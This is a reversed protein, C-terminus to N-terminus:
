IKIIGQVGSVELIKRYLVQNLPGVLHLEADNDFPPTSKMIYIDEDYGPAEMKSLLVRLIEQRIKSETKPYNGIAALIQVMAYRSNLSESDMLNSVAKIFHADVDQFRQSAYIAVQQVYFVDKLAACFAEVCPATMKRLHSLCSVANMRDTFVKSRLVIRLLSGEFDPIKKVHLMYTAPLKEAGAALGDLWVMTKMWQISEVHSQIEGAPKNEILNVATKKVFEAFEDPQQNFYVGLVRICKKTYAGWWLDKSAALLGPLVLEKKVLTAVIRNIIQSLDEGGTLIEHRCIAEAAAARLEKSEGTLFQFIFDKENEFQSRGLAIVVLGASYLDEGVTIQKLKGLDNTTLGSSYGIADIAFPKLLSNGSNVVSMIANRIADVADHIRFDDGLKQQLSISSKLLAKVVEENENSFGQLYANYAKRGNVVKIKGIINRAMRSRRRHGGAEAMLETIMNAQDFSLYEFFWHLGKMLYPSKQQHRSLTAEIDYLCDLSVESALFRGKNLALNARNRFQDQVPEYEGLLMKKVNVFTSKNIFGVELFLLSAFCKLDDNGVYLWESVISLAENSASKVVLMVKRILDLHNRQYMYSIALAGQLTLRIPRLRGKAVIKDILERLRLDDPAQVLSWLEDIREPLMFLHSGDRLLAGISLLGLRYNREGLSPLQLFQPYIRDEYIYKHSLKRLRDVQIKFVETLGSDSSIWGKIERLNRALNVGVPLEKACQIASNVADMREGSSSYSALKLWSQLRLEPNSIKKIISSIMSRIEQFGDSTKFLAGDFEQFLITKKRFKRLVTYLVRLQKEPSGEGEISLIKKDLFQVVKFDATPFFYDFYGEKSVEFLVSRIVNDFEKEEEGIEALYEPFYVELIERLAYRSHINRLMIEIVGYFRGDSFSDILPKIEKLAWCKFVDFETSLANINFLAEEIISPLDESFAPMREVSWKQQDPLDTVKAVDVFSKAIVEPGLSRIEAGLTDLVVSINYFADDSSFSHVWMEAMALSQLNKPIAKIWTIPSSIREEFSSTLRIINNVFVQVEDDNMNDVIGELSGSIERSITGIQKSLLVNLLSIREIVLKVIHSEPDISLQKLEEVMPNGVGMLFILADIREQTPRTESHWIAMCEETLSEPPSEADLADIISETLSSRRFIGRPDFEYSKDKEILGGYLMILIRSWSQSGLIQPVVQPYDLLFKRFELEPHNLSDSNENARIALYKHFPWGWNMMDDPLNEIISSVLSHSTWNLNLLLDVVANKFSRKSAPSKLFEYLFEVVQSYIENEKKSFAQFTEVVNSRLIEGDEFNETKTYANLLKIVVDRILSNDPLYGMEAFSLAILNASRPVLNDMPDKGELLSRLLRNREDPLLYQNLTGIAMLLPERWRPKYAKKIIEDTIMDPYRILKRAAFYEEFTLHLFGYLEEARAALIGVEERLWKLFIEVESSILSPKIPIAKDSYYSTLGKGTLVKVEDTVILGVPYNEHIHEAIDELIYFTKERFDEIKLGKNQLRNEGIKIFNDSAKEYLSVRTDPLEGNESYFIKCLETLLLPNSALDKAGSNKANFLLNILVNTKEISEFYVQQVKRNAHLRSHAALIWTSCFRRIADEQMPQITVHYLDEHQVPCNHYGAIRSTILFKNRKRIKRTKPFDVERDIFEQIEAVMDARKSKGAGVTEESIEDLGDLIVLAEGRHLYDLMLSNLAQSNIPQSVQDGDDLYYPVRGMWSHSGIFESLTIKPNTKKQQALEGVRILIPLRVPGFDCYDNEAHISSGVMKAEVSLREEGNLVGKAFKLMLWRALTTKGTGPDGLVVLKDYKSLADSLNLHNKANVMDREDISPMISSRGLLRNRKKRKEVDSIGNATWDNELQELEEAYYKQTQLIEYSKSLEGRLSVFVKDLPINNAGRLGPMKITAHQKILWKAYPQLLRQRNIYNGLDKISLKLVNHDRVYMVWKGRSNADSFVPRMTRNRYQLRFEEEEKLDEAILRSQADKFAKGISHGQSLTRYFRKSFVVASRDEINVATAIVISVGADLLLEAQTETSCGNLFVVPLCGHDKILAGIGKSNASAGELKLHTGDAHGAYHFIAIQNWNRNFSTYINELTAASLCVHDVGPCDMMAETIGSEEEGLLDLYADNDNAFATM